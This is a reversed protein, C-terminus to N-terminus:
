RWLWDAQYDWIFAPAAGWRDPPELSIAFGIPHETMEGKPRFNFETRGFRYGTAVIQLSTFRAENVDFVGRGYVTTRMGRPWRTERSAEVRAQTRGDFRVAVQNGSVATVTTRIMSDSLSERPFSQTQGNVMDVLHLAIFRRAVAEPWERSAGQVFSEPVLARTEAASFWAVDRNWKKSCADDPELSEPLDRSFVSLIMGDTPQRSEVRSVNWASTDVRKGREEAPM